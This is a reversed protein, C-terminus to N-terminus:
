FSGDVQSVLGFFAPPLGEIKAIGKRGDGIVAAIENNIVPKRRIRFISRGSDTAINTVKKSVDEITPDVISINEALRMGAAKDPLYGIALDHGHVVSWPGESIIILVVWAARVARSRNGGEVL